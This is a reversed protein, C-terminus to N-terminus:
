TQACMYVYGRSGLLGNSNSIEEPEPTTGNHWAANSNEGIPTIGDNQVLLTRKTQNKRKVTGCFPMSEQALGPQYAKTSDRIFLESKEM